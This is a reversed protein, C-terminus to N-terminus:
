EKEDKRIMKKAIICVKSVRKLEYRLDRLFILLNNREKKYM